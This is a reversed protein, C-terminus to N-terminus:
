RLRNSATLLSERLQDTYSQVANAADIESIDPNSQLIEDLRVQITANYQSHSGIHQALTLRIGNNSGNINFGGRAAQQILPHNRLAWPMIHHVQGGTGEVAARLHRRAVHASVGLEDLYARTNGVTPCVRIGAGVIPLAASAFNGQSGDIAASAADIGIGLPGPVGLAALEALNRLRNATDQVSNAAEGLVNGGLRSDGGAARAEFADLDLRDSGHVVGGGFIGGLAWGIGSGVLSPLTLAGAGTEYAYYGAWGLDSEPYRDGALGFPDTYTWPNNGVYTYANGLNMPDGWAGIPDRTTFRGELPDMYRNRYYYLGLEPDWHRGNFLYPNGYRSQVLEGTSGGSGDEFTTLRAGGVNTVPLVEGTDVSRLLPFGYDGPIPAYVPEGNVMGTYVAGDLGSGYTYAEVVEGAANGLFWANNQDDLFYYYDEPTGDPQLAGSANCVDRQMSIPEDLTRGYVYTAINEGTANQEALVSNGLHVYRTVQGNVVKAIRRGLADYRYTSEIGDLNDLHRVLRNEHDYWFKRVPIGQGGTGDMQTLNSNFDYDDVHGRSAGIAGTHALQYANEDYGWWFQQTYDFTEMEASGGRTDTLTVVDRNGLADLAYDARFFEAPTSDEVTSATLRDLSDYEFSTNVHSETWPGPFSEYRSTRQGTRANKGYRQKSVANVGSVKFQHETEKIAQFGIGTDSWLEYLGDTPPEPLEHGVGYVSVGASNGLEKRRVQGPKFGFYNAHTIAGETIMRIENLPSYTRSIIRGAQAGNNPYHISLVNGVGDVDQTVNVPVSATGDEFTTTESMLRGLSDYGRIVTAHDNTGRVLRSLGDYAFTEEPNSPVIVGAGPTLMKRVLRAAGDYFHTIVTGNQDQRSKIAGTPYHTFHVSPMGGDEPHGIGTLRDLADYFYKTLQGSNSESELRNNHDYTRSLTLFVTDPDGDLMREMSTMRNLGDYSNRTVHNNLDKHGVVNSRSDYEYRERVQEPDVYGNSESFMDGHMLVLRNLSDYEYFEGEVETINYVSWDPEWEIQPHTARSTVNGNLDRTLSLGFGPKSMGSLEGYQNYSYNSTVNNDDTVATRNGRLNYQLVDMAVGDGGVAGTENQHTRRIVTPLNISSYDREETYLVTRIGPTDSSSEGEVEIITINGNADYTCTTVTGSPDTKTKVRGFGDLAYTYVVDATEGGGSIVRSTLAGMADYEMTQSYGLARQISTPQNRENYSYAIVNGPEANNDTRNAQGTTVKEINRNADFEYGTKVPAGAGTHQLRTRPFNLRDHDAYEVMSQDTADIPTSVPSDAVGLLRGQVSSLLNYNEDYGYLTRYYASSRTGSGLFSEANSIPPSTISILHNMKDYTYRTVNGKPDTSKVLNGWFDYELYTRREDETQTVLTGKSATLQQYMYSIPIEFGPRVYSAIRGKFAGQNSYTFEAKAGNPYTISKSTGDGYYEYHTHNGNRDYYDSPSDACGCDPDAHDYDYRERLFAQDAGLPGPYDIRELLRGRKRLDSQESDYIFRTYAENPLKVKTRQSDENWFQETVLVPGQDTFVEEKLGRNLQDYHLVRKKGRRDIITTRTVEQRNASTPTEVDYAWTTVEGEEGWRQSTIRDYDPMAKNSEYHNEVYVEGRADTITHLNGSLEPHNADGALYTFSRTNGNPDTVSKLDGNPHYGYEFRRYAPWNRIDLECRVIRAAPNTFADNFYVHTKWGEDSSILLLATNTTPYSFDFGIGLRSEIRRIRGIREGSEPIVHFHWKAGDEYELYLSGNSEKISRFYEPRTWVGPSTEEFYDKRGNGSNLVLVNGDLKELYINYSYDWNNGMATPRGHRSRYHRGWVFDVGGGKSPITLDVEDLYVEGSYPYVPDGEHRFDSQSGGCSSPDAFSIGQSAPPLSSVMQGRWSVGHRNLIANLINGIGPQGGNEDSHEFTVAVSPQSTTNNNWNHLYVIKDRAHEPGLVQGNEMRVNSTWQMVQWDESPQAELKFKDDPHFMYSQIEESDIRVSDESLPQNSVPDLPTLILRGAGTKKVKLTERPEFIARISTDGSMYVTKALCEVSDECEELVGNIEWAELVHGLSPAALVEVVNGDLATVDFADFDGAGLEFVTGNPLAGSLTGGSTTTVTLTRLCNLVNDLTAQYSLGTQVIRTLDMEEVTEDPNSGESFTWRDFCEVSGALPYASCTLAGDEYFLITVNRNGQSTPLEEIIGGPAEIEVGFTDSNGLQVTALGAKRLTVNVFQNWDVREVVPLDIAVGNGRTGIRRADGEYGIYHADDDPQVNVTVMDGPWFGEYVYKTTDGEQTVEGKPDCTHVVEALNVTFTAPSNAESDTNEVNVELRPLATELTVDQGAEQFKALTELECDDYGDRVGTDEITIQNMEAFSDLYGLEGEIQPWLFGPEQLAEYVDRGTTDGSSNDDAVYSIDGGEQTANFGSRVLATEFRGGVNLWGATKSYVGFNTEEIGLGEGTGNLTYLHGLFAGFLLSNMEANDIVRHFEFDRWMLFAKKSGDTTGDPNAYQFSKEGDRDEVGSIAIEVAKSLFKGKSEGFELGPWGNAAAIMSDKWDLTKSFMESQVEELMWDFHDVFDSTDVRFELSMEAGEANTDPRSVAHTRYQVPIARDVDIVAQDDQPLLGYLSFTIVNDGPPLAAFVIPSSHFNGNKRVTGDEVGEIRWSTYPFYKEMSDSGSDSDSINGVRPIRLKAKFNLTGLGTRYPIRGDVIEFNPEILEVDYVEVDRFRFRSNVFFEGEGAFQGDHQFEWWESAPATNSNSALAVGQDLWYVDDGLKGWDSHASIHSEEDQSALYYEYAKNVPDTLQVNLTVDGQEVVEPELIAVFLLAYKLHSVDFHCFCVSAHACDDFGFDSSFAYDIEHCQIAPAYGSTDRGLHRNLFTLKVAFVRSQKIITYPIQATSIPIYLNVGANIFQVPEGYKNVVVSGEGFSQGVNTSQGNSESKIALFLQQENQHITEVAISNADLTHFMVENYSETAPDITSVCVGFAGARAPVINALVLQDEFIQDNCDIFEAKIQLDSNEDVKLDLHSGLYSGAWSVTEPTVQCWKVANLLSPYETPSIQVRTGTEYYATVVNAASEFYSPEPEFQFYNAQGIPNSLRIPWTRAFRATVEHNSLIVVTTSTPSPLELTRRELGDWTKLVWHEAEDPLATLLVEQNPSVPIEIPSQASSYVTPAGDALRVEVEQGEGDIELTLTHYEAKFVPTVNHDRTVEVLQSPASGRLTGRWGVFTENPAPTATLQAYEGEVYRGDARDVSCKDGEGAGADFHVYSKFVGRVAKHNFAHSIGSSKSTSILDGEWCAFVGDVPEVAMLDFPGGEDLKAAGEAFGTMGEGEQSLMIRFQRKGTARPNSSAAFEEDNYIGDEDPDGDAGDDGSASTPNLNSSVEWGDPLGDSDSDADNPDTGYHQEHFASLGDSDADSYDASSEVSKFIAYVNVRPRNMPVTIVPAHGQRMGEWRDFYWGPRPMATLTIATNARYEHYDVVSIERTAAGPADVQIQGVGETDLFLTYAQNRGEKADVVWKLDFLDFLGDGNVDAKEFTTSGTGIANQVITVDQMDRDGDADVDGDFVYLDEGPIFIAAVETDETLTLELDGTSTNITAGAPAVWHDFYYGPIPEAHLSVTDNPHYNREARAVRYTGPFGDNITLEGKGLINAKLRPGHDIYVVTVVKNADMTLALEADRGIVNGNADEWHHFVQDEPSIERAHLTVGGDVPLYGVYQGSELSQGAHSNPYDWFQPWPDAKIYDREEGPWESASTGAETNVTLTYADEFEASVNKDADMTVKAILSNYDAPTADGGWELLRTGPFPVATLTVETGAKYLGDADPEPDAIIAETSNITLIYKDDFVARITRDQDMVLELPVDGSNIVGTGADQVWQSFRSGELAVPTLTVKEFADFTTQNPSIEVSGGGDSLVTLHYINKTLQASLTRDSSVEFSISDSGLDAVGAVDGTWGTFTWGESPLVTVTVQQGPEYTTLPPALSFSAPGNSVTRVQFGDEFIGTVEKDGNMVIAYYPGQQMVETGNTGAWARLVNGLEPTVELLATEGDVYVTTGTSTQISGGGGPVTSTGNFLATNLILDFEELFVARITTDANVTTSVTSSNPDADANLSGEWHAFQWGPNPTATLTVSQGTPYAGGPPNTTVSGEGTIQISLDWYPIFTATVSKPGNMTVKIAPGHPDEASDLDGYWEGLQWLPAPTASLNVLTNAAYGGTQMDAVPIAQVEGEGIVQTTLFNTPTCTLGNRIVTVDHAEIRPIDLCIAHNGLPCLSIDLVDLGGLASLSVLDELDTLETDRLLLEALNELSALPSVDSLPTESLGLVSLSSLAGVPAIEVIPNAGIKLQALQPMKELPSLDDIANGWMVLDTIGPAHILPLFDAIQHRTLEVSTLDRAHELGTLDVIIEGVAADTPNPMSFSTFGTGNLDSAWIEAGVNPGGLIANLAERVASELAPDPIHVPYDDEPYKLLTFNDIKMRGPQWPGTAGTSGLTLLLRIRFNVSRVLLPELGQSIKPLTTLTAGWPESSHPRTWARLVSGYTEIYVDNWSGRLSEPLPATQHTRVAGNVVDLIELTSPYINLRTYNVSDFYRTDVGISQQEGASSAFYVSFTIGTNTNSEPRRIIAQRPSSTKYTLYTNAAESELYYGDYDGQEKEWPSPLVGGTSEFNETDDLDFTTFEWVEGQETGSPNRPSIRWYYKKGYELQGLYSQSSITGTNWLPPPNEDGFYVDVEDTNLGNLWSLTVDLPIDASGNLPYNNWPLEPLPLAGTTFSWIPGAMDPDADGDGDFEEVVKWSYTTFEELRGAPKFYPNIPSGAFPISSPNTGLYVRHMTVGTQFDWGLGTNVSVDTAGHVPSPHNPAANAEFSAQLLRDQDMIVEISSEYYSPNNLGYNGYWRGFSFGTLDAAEVQLIAPEEDIPDYTYTLPGSYAAGNILVSGGANGTVTLTHECGVGDDLVTVGRTKLTPIDVCYANSTLPCDIVELMDSASSFNSNNVLPALDTVGTDKIAVTNLPKTNFGANALSSIPTRHAYFTELQTLSNVYGLATDNFGSADSVRLERLNTCQAIPEWQVGTANTHGLVAIQLNPLNPLVHFSSIPNSWVKLINLSRMHVLPSLDTFNQRSIELNTVGRAHELGSLSQILDGTPPNTPNSVTFATFAPANLHNSFLQGTGDPVVLLDELAEHVKENLVADPFHVPYYDSTYFKMRFDDVYTHGIYAAGGSGERLRMHLRVCTNSLYPDVSLPQLAQTTIPPNTTAYQELSITTDPERVWVKLTSGLTEIYTEYYSGNGHIFPTTSSLNTITGGSGNPRVDELAIASKTFTIKTYDLPSKYRPNVAIAQNASANQFAYKFSIVNNEHQEDHRIIGTVATSASTNTLYTELGDFDVVIGSSNGEGTEVRWPYPYSAGVPPLTNFNYFFQNSQQAFVATLVTDNNLTLALPTSYSISQTPADFDWHQFTWGSGPTPLLNFATGKDYTGSAVSVTGSGASRVSLTRTEVFTATVTKAADMFVTNTHAGSPLTVDPGNVSGSWGSFRSGPTPTATVTLTANEDQLGTAPTITGTGSGSKTTTLMYRKVFHPIVYWNGGTVTISLSTQTPPTMQLTSTVLGYEWGDFRYGSPPAATFTVATGIENGNSDVAYAYSLSTTAYKTSAPNSVTVPCVGNGSNFTLYVYRHTITGGSSAHAAQDGGLLLMGPFISALLALVAVLGWALGFAYAYRTLHKKLHRSMM